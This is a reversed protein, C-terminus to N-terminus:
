DVQTATYTTVPTITLVNPILKNSIYSFQYSDATNVFLNKYAETLGKNDRTLTDWGYRSATAYSNYQKIYNAFALAGCKQKDTPTASMLTQNVTAIATQEDTTFTPTSACKTSANKQM